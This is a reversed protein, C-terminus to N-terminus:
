MIWFICSPITHSNILHYNSVDVPPTSIHHLNAVGVSHSLVTKVSFHVWLLNHCPFTLESSAKYWLLMWIRPYTFSPSSWVQNERIAFFSGSFFISNLSVHTWSKVADDQNIETLIIKKYHWYKFFVLNVIGSTLDTCFM